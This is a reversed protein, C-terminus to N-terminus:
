VVARHKTNIFLSYMFFDFVTINRWIESIQEQVHIKFTITRDTHYFSIGIILFDIYIYHQGPFIKHVSIFKTNQMIQNEETYDKPQTGEHRGDMLQRRGAWHSM